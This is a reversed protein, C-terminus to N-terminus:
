LEIRQLLTDLRNYYGELSVSMKQLEAAIPVGMHGDVDKEGTEGRTPEQTMVPALKEELAKIQGEIASINGTLRNLARTIISEPVVKVVVSFSM